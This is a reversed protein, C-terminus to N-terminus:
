RVMRSLARFDDTGARGLLDFVVTETTTRIAGARECLALGVRRRDDARSAVADDPVHVAAGWAALGRATQYVCIHAEMGAVIWQPRGIREYIARFADHETCGFALKEFRTAAAATAAALISPLTPGLGKPYQESVVVPLALRRGLEILIRVNREVREVDAPPMAAALREQVDVVLVAARAAELKLAPAPEPRSM